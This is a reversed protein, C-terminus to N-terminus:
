GHLNTPRDVLTNTSARKLSQVKDNSTLRIEVTSSNSQSDNTNTKISTLDEIDGCSSGGNNKPAGWSNLSEPEDDKSEDLNDFPKSQPTTPQLNGGRVIQSAHTHSPSTFLNSFDDSPPPATATPQIIKQHNSEACNDYHTSPWNQPLKNEFTYTAPHPSPSQFGIIDNQMDAQTPTQLLDQESATARVQPPTHYGASQANTFLTAFAPLPVTNSSPYGGSLTAPKAMSKVPSPPYFDKGDFKPLGCGKLASRPADGWYLHRARVEDETLPRSYLFGSGEGMHMGSPLTGILYPKSAAEFTSFTAPFAHARQLLASQNADSFQYNQLNQIGSLSAHHAGTYPTLDCDSSSNETRRNGLTGYQPPSLVPNPLALSTSSTQRAIDGVSESDSRHAITHARPQFPPAKAAAVTLRSKTAPEPRTSPKSETATKTTQADESQPYTGPQNGSSVFLPVPPVMISVKKPEENSAASSRILSSKNGESGDNVDVKRLMETSCNRNVAKASKGTKGNLHAISVQSTEQGLQIHLMTEMKEIFVMLENRQRLLFNEDVQHTNNAMQDDIHKVQNRLGQIQSKTLESLSVLSPTFQSMYPAVPLAGDLHPGGNPFMMPLHGVTRPPMILPIPVPMPYSQPFFNGSALGQHQLNPDGLVTIPLPISNPPPQFGAPVPYVVQGNFMFPRSHDFQSPPSIKIPQPLNTLQLPDTTTEKAPQHNEWPTQAHGDLGSINQAAMTAQAMPASQPFNYNSLHDPPLLSPVIPQISNPLWLNQAQPTSLDINPFTKRPEFLCRDPNWDFKPPAIVRTNPVIRGGATVRVHTPSVVARYFRQFNESQQSAIGSPASHPESSRHSSDRQRLHWQGQRTGIM